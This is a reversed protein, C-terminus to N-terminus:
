RALEGRAVATSVMPLDTAFAFPIAIRVEHRVTVRVPQRWGVRSPTVTVTTRDPDIRAARLSDTLLQRVAPGDGGLEAALRAAHATAADQALWRHFADGFQITAFLLPVLVLIMLSTELTATGGDSRM